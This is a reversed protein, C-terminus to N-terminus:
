NKVGGTYESRWSDIQGTELARQMSRGGTGIGYGVLSVKVDKM